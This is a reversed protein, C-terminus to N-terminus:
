DDGFGGSDDGMDGPDEHNEEAVAEGSADHESLGSRDDFGGLFQHAIATGIFSGAISSLLTGGLMSGMGRGGFARELSGPRRIESRTAMRALTQPDTQNSAAAREAVPLGQNLDRSVEARQEPTLQAFAETHAQEIAEPPATRLLYRYRALAQEDTSAGPVPKRPSPAQGFLRELIGM